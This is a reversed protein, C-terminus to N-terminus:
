YSLLYTLCFVIYVAFCSDWCGAEPTEYLFPLDVLVSIPCALTMMTNGVEFTQSALYNDLINLKNLYNYM